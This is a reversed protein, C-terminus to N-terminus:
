GRVGCIASPQRPELKNKVKARISDIVNLGEQRSKSFVAAEEAFVVKDAASLAADLPEDPVHV